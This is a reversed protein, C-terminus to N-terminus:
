DAAKLEPLASIARQKSENTLHLYVATHKLSAHTLLKSVEFVSVGHLLLNSAFSHRAVYQTVRKRIGAKATWKELFRNITNKATEPPLDHFIRDTSQPNIQKARQAEIIRIAESHLPIAVPQPAKARTKNPVFVCFFNGNADQQINQWALRRVDGPRIGTFCIFLFFNKYTQADYKVTPPPPTNALLRLEEVTLFSREVTDKPLPKLGRCPNYIILERRLAENIVARFAELYKAATSFSIEKREALSELYNRFDIALTASLEGFTLDSRSQSQLFALLKLLTNRYVKPSKKSNMVARFFEVFSQNRAVIHATGTAGQALEADRLRAIEKCREFEQKFNEKTAFGVTERHRQGNLTYAVFFSVGTATKRTRLQLRTLKLLTGIKM